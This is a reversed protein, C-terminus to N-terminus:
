FLFKEKEDNSPTLIIEPAEFDCKSKELDVILRRCRIYNKGNRVIPPGGTMIVKNEKREWIARDAVVETKMNQQDNFVVHVNGVAVVRNFGQVGKIGLDSTVEDDSTKEEDFYVTANDTTLKREGDKVIVHGRLYATNDDFSYKLEDSNITVLTKEAPAAWSVSLSLWFLILLIKQM